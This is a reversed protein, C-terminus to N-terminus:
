PMLKIVKSLIKSSLIKAESRKLEEEHKVADLVDAPMLSEKEETKETFTPEKTLYSRAELEIAETM